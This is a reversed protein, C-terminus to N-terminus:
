CDPRGLHSVLGARVADIAVLANSFKSARSVPDYHEYRYQNSPRPHAKAM